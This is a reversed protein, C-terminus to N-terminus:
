RSVEGGFTEFPEGPEDAAAEEILDAYLDVVYGLLFSEGDVVLDVAAARLDSVLEATRTGNRILDSAITEARFQYRSWDDEAALLSQAVHNGLDIYSPLNM